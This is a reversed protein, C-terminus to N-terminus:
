IRSEDALALCELKFDWVKGDEESRGVGCTTLKWGKMGGSVWLRGMMKGKPTDIFHFDFSVEGKRYRVGDVSAVVCELPVGSRDGLSQINEIIYLPKQFQKYLDEADYKRGNRTEELINWNLPLRPTESAHLVSSFPVLLVGAGVASIKLFDRRKM